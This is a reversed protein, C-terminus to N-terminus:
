RNSLERNINELTERKLEADKTIVRFIQGLLVQIENFTTDLNNSKELFVDISQQLHGQLLGQKNNEYDVLAKQISETVRNIWEPNEALSQTRSLEHVYVQLTAKAKELTTSESQDKQKQLQKKGQSYM